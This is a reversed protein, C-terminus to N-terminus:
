GVKEQHRASPLEVERLVAEHELLLGTGRVVATTPDDAVRVPIEAARSLAKDLGRLQAGGGVLVIGREHIDAVLEPPTVELTAKVADIISKVSRQIAERVQSDSVVVERPLGTMLDRGRIAMHEEAEFPDASGLRIKLEEAQREGILLNFVERCYQVINHDMEEGAIPLSRWTVVGSLSIVAIETIGGGVSVILTGIADEVPLRVGFAAAMPAEIVHVESAGAAYAADEIAKREVETIELPAGVVIRPRPVLNVGDEHVKDIFYKIMKEAVEYDSIIGRLLPRSTSIHAPTKGMMDRATHGVAMIQDTKVNIAVVSPEDVVIGKDKVYVRTHSSGLDLGVDKSFRKFINKFM